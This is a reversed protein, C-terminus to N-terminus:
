VLDRGSGGGMIRESFVLASDARNTNGVDIQEALGLFNGYEHFASGDGGIYITSYEGAVPPQTTFTIGTDAFTDEINSSNSSSSRKRVLSRRPCVFVRCTSGKSVIPGHYTVDSAGDFDLYVVQGEFQGERFDILHMGLPEPCTGSAPLHRGELPESRSAAGDTSARLTTLAPHPAVIVDPTVTEVAHGSVDVAVASWALVRRDELQELEPRCRVNRQSAFRKRCRGNTVASM